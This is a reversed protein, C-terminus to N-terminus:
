VLRIKGTLLQQMMGQKLDIYKAKQKELTEIETDMDSLVQAIATQEDLEQPFYISLENLSKKQINPLGSGVRLEMIKNELNKLLHFLFLDYIETNPKIAYCHGGLWFKQTCYNVFGCSNGGESITITNAKSNWQVTYGSPEMGGNWVPYEGDEKLTSKNLQTGKVIYSTNGLAKEEWEGSFGPLRRKGTLLEQMAGQKIHRKKQILQSLKTILSDIESLAQAIAKQESKKPTPILVKKLSKKSLGYVKLGTALQDFQQKVIKNSHLYGRFGDVLCGKKDRLLFTHLGSIVKENTLNKIEISKGIGEYDESADAFVLDGNQLLSFNRAKSYSITPLSSGIINLFHNYKTHIDGYHIYKVDQNDSLEARSYNATRLFNFAEDYSTLEWDEPIIGVDTQKHGAPINSTKSNM